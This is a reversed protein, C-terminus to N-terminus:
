ESGRTPRHSFYISAVPLDFSSANTFNSFFHSFYLISVSAPIFAFFSPFSSSFSFPFLCFFSACVPLFFFCSSFYKPVFLSFSSPYFWLILSYLFFPQPPLFFLPHYFPYLLLFLSYPLSLPVSSPVSSLLPFSSSFSIVFSLSVLPLFLCSSVFLPVLFSLSTRVFLLRFTFYRLSFYLFMPLFFFFDLCLFLHLFFIIVVWCQFLAAFPFSLFFFVHFRLSLKSIFFFVVYFDQCSFNSSLHILRNPINREKVEGGEPCFGKREMM